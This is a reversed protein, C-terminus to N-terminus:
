RALPPILLGTQIERPEVKEVDISSGLGLGGAGGGGGGGVGGFDDGRFEQFAGITSYTHVEWAEMDKIGRRIYVVGEIVDGTVVGAPLNAVIEPCGIKETQFPGLSFAPLQGVAAAGAASVSVIVNNLTTTNPNFINLATSYSGPQFDRESYPPQQFGLPPAAGLGSNLQPPTIGDVFGCIFKAPYVVSTLTPLQQAHAPSTCGLGVAATLALGFVSKGYRGFRRSANRVGFLRTGIKM